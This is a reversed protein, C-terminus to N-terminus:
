AADAVRAVASIRKALGRGIRDANAMITLTPHRASLLPLSAGDAVFIGPVGTLQGSLDTAAPGTGGMPLSAGPHADSGPGLLHTAFPLRWAGLRRARKALDAFTRHLLRETDPSQRGQIVIRGDGGDDELTLTNDSLDGPLYGTALIVAPMLAQALQMAARRTFPLRDAIATLPLTDAGYLVGAAEIGLAPTLTYFLQGLGFSKEPLAKGILEPVLFATGGVPNSALRVPQGFLGLRPPLACSRAAAAAPKSSM